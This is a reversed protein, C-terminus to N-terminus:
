FAIGPTQGDAGLLQARVAIRRAEERTLHHASTDATMRQVSRAVASVRM